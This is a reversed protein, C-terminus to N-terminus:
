RVKKNILIRLSGKKFVEGGMLTYNILYTVLVNNYNIILFVKLLINM